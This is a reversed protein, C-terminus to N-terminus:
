TRENKPFPNLNKNEKLYNMARKFNQGEVDVIALEGVKEKRALNFLGVLAGSSLSEFIM